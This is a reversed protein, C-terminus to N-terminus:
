LLATIAPNQNYVIDGYMVVTCYLPPSVFPVAHLACQVAVVPLHIAFM